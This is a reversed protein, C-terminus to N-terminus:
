LRKRAFEEKAKKKTIVLVDTPLKKILKKAVRPSIVGNWDSAVVHGKYWVNCNENGLDVWIVTDGTEDTFIADNSVTSLREFTYSDINREASKWERYDTSVNVFYSVSVGFMVAACIVVVMFAMLHDEIIDILKM